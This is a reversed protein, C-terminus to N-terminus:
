KRSSSVQSKPKSRERRPYIERYVRGKRVLKGTADVVQFKPQYHQHFKAWCTIEETCAASSAHTFKFVNQCLSVKHTECYNTVTTTKRNEVRCIFCQRQYEYKKASDKNEYFQKSARVVCDSFPSQTAPLAAAPSPTRTSSTTPATTSLGPPSEYMIQLENISNKWAGSILEAALQEVFERHTDRSKHNEGFALKRSMYANVRAIDIFAMALKIHWKKFTHGDALSFRARLQDLRDVGQM